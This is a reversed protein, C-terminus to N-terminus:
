TSSMHLEPSSPALHPSILPPPVQEVAARPELGGLVDPLWTAGGIAGAWGLIIDGYALRAGYMSMMMKVAQVMGCTRLQHLVMPGDFSAPTLTTNPKICRVFGADTEGLETLLGKLDSVFREAVTGYSKGVGHLIVEQVTQVEDEPILAKVLANSSNHIARSLDGFFTDSNREVFQAATYTVPQVFHKITFRERARFLTKGKQGLAAIAAVCAPNKANLLECLAGDTGREGLRCQENPLPPM